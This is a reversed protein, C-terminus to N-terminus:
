VLYASSTTVLYHLSPRRLKVGHKLYVFLVQNCNLNTLWVDLEDLEFKVSRINLNLISFNNDFISGDFNIYDYKQCRSIIDATTDPSEDYPYNIDLM